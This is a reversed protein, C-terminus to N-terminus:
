EFSGGAARTRSRRGARATTKFERAGASLTPVFADHSRLSDIHRPTAVLGDADIEGARIM